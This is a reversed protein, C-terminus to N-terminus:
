LKETEKAILYISHEVSPFSFNLSKSLLSIDMRMDNPRPITNNFSQYSVKRMLDSSLNVKKALDIIFDAKTIEGASGINFVGTLDVKLSNILIKALDSGHLPNFIIDTFGYFEKKANLSKLAWRAFGNHYNMGLGVFNIRFILSNDCSSVIDESWLKTMGYFNIPNVKKESHPGSGSYVQDTSFYIIKTTKEKQKIWDVLNRTIKVNSLYASQIDNQCMELNVLAATHIILSPNLNNLLEFTKKKDRLDISIFDRNVKNMFCLNAISYDMNYLEKSIYYGLLGSSGTLLASLTM